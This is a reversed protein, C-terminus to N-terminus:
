KGITLQNNVNRVGNVAKALQTARNKAAVNPATGKLVVNGQTVDVNIKLASLEDDTALASNIAVNLGADDVKEGLTTKNNDHATNNVTDNHRTSESNKIELRNDVSVVGNTNKAIMEAREKASNNPATGKLVVHGKDSDVNIKLASLEKDKVLNGNLVTVIKADDVAQGVTTKSHNDNKYTEAAIVNVSSLALIATTITLLKKM